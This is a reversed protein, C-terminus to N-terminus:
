GARAVLFIFDNKVERGGPMGRGSDMQCRWRRHFAHSFDAQWKCRQQLGAFFRNAMQLTTAVRFFNQKGSGDSNCGLFFDIQWKCRQQLSSFIRNAVQLTTAVTFFNQKGNGGSNCAQFFIGARTAVNDRVTFFITSQTKEHYLQLFNLARVLDEM